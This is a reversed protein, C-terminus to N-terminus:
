ENVVTIHATLNLEVGYSNYEDANNNFLPHRVFLKTFTVIGLTVQRDMSFELGLSEDLIHVCRYM